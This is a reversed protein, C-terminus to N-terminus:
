NDCSFYLQLAKESASMRSTYRGLAMIPFYHRYYDYEMYLHGAFGTGTYLILPRTAIDGKEGKARSQVLYSIARQICGM